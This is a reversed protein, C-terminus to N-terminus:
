PFSVRFTFDVTLIKGEHQFQGWAKYLGPKIFNALFSVAPGGRWNSEVEETPHVHLFERADATIIVCHGGAAMLPELNNIDKGDADRVEFTMKVTQRPVPNRPEFKLNIRYIQGEMVIGKVLTNDVPIDHPIHMPYGEVDFIHAALIQVGGKPKTDSWLKYKGAKPFNHTITFIGTEEDLQPHVHAFYSLDSRDVIVLHMLKDHIIDFQNIPEGVKQETVVLSLKASEGAQPIVPDFQINVNYNTVAPTAAASNAATSSQTTHQQMSHQHHGHQESSHSEREHQMPQEPQVRKSSSSREEEKSNVSMFEGERTNNNIGERETCTM